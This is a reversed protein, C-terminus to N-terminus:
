VQIPRVQCTCSVVCASVCMCTTSPVNLRCCFWVDSSNYVTSILNIWRKKKKKFINEAEQKKNKLLISFNQVLKM